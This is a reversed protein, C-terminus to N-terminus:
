GHVFKLSTLKVVQGAAITSADLVVDPDEVDAVHVGVTMGFGKVVDSADTVVANVPTLGAGAAAEGVSAIFAGTTIDLDGNTVVGIPNGLTFVALLVGTGAGDYGLTGVKVKGGPGIANMKATQSAAKVSDVWSVSM